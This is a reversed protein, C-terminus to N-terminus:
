MYIILPLHTVAILLLKPLMTVSLFDGLVQFCFHPSFWSYLYKLLCGPSVAFSFVYVYNRFTFRLLSVSDIKIAASFLAM